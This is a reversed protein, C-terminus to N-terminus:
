FNDNQKFIVLFFLAAYSTVMCYPELHGSTQLWEAKVLLRCWKGRGGSVGNKLGAGGISVSASAIQFCFRKNAQELRHNGAALQACTSIMAFLLALFVAFSATALLKVIPPLSPIFFCIYVVYCQLVIQSGFYVSLFPSWYTSTQLLHGCLRLLDVNLQEYQLWCDFICIGVDSERRKGRTRRKDLRRSQRRFLQRLQDLLHRQRIQEFRCTLVLFLTIAFLIYVMYFITLPFLLAWLLVEVVTLEFNANILLVHVLCFAAGFAALAVSLSFAEHDGQDDKDDKDVNDGDSPPIVRTPLYRDVTYPNRLFTLYSVVSFTAAMTFAIDMQPWMARPFAQHTMLRPSNLLLLLFFLAAYSIVLYFTKSSIAYNDLLVMCYPELRGSTQLWEANARELGDNLAAVQACTSIMAFLLILFLTFCAIAMVKVVTPLSPIFFCIYVVYCQIVIQGAFYVSLFPSWFASSQRIHGCLRLLDGNLQEYAAWFSHISTLVQALSSRRRGNRGRRQELERKSAGQRRALRQLRGLLSQQRFQIFKCTLVIFLTIAFMIYILYFVSAPYLVTWLLVEMLTGEFASNILLVHVYCFGSVFLTLGIFLTFVPRHFGQHFATIRQSEATSLLKGRVALSISERSSKTVGASVERYRDVTYPNRLFTLYSALGFAAAMSFAIDLQPWMARPFAQHTMLRPSSIFLELPPLQFTDIGFCNTRNSGFCVLYIDGIFMTVAIVAM